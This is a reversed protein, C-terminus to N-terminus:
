TLMKPIYIIVEQNNDQIVAANDFDDTKDSDLDLPINGTKCIGMRFQLPTNFQM